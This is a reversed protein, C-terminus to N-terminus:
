ELYGREVLNKNFKKIFIFEMMRKYFIIVFAM